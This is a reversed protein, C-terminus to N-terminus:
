RKRKKDVKLLPKTYIRIYPKKNLDDEEGGV